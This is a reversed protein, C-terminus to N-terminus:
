VAPIGVVVLPAAGGGFRVSEGPKLRRVAPVVELDGANDALFESRPVTFAELLTEGAADFVSVLLM